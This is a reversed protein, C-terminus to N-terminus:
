PSSECLYNWLPWQDLITSTTIHILGTQLSTLRSGIMTFTPHISNNGGGVVSPVRRCQQMFVLSESCCGHTSTLMMMFKSCQLEVFRTFYWPAYIYAYTPQRQAEPCDTKFIVEAGNPSSGRCQSESSSLVVELFPRHGMGKSGSWVTEYGLEPDLNPGRHPELGLISQFTSRFMDKQAMNM